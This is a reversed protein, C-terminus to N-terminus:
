GKKLGVAVVVDVQRQDTRVVDVGPHKGAAFGAQQWHQFRLVDGVAHDLRDQLVFDVAGQRVVYADEQGQLAEQRGLDAPLQHVADHLTGM